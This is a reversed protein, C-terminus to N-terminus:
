GARRATPCSELVRALTASKKKRVEFPALVDSGLVARHTCRASLRAGVGPHGRYRDLRRFKSQLCLRCSAAVSDPPPHSSLVRWVFLQEFDSQANDAVTLRAEDIHARCCMQPRWSVCISLLLPRCFCTTIAIGRESPPEVGVIVRTSTQVRCPGVALEGMLIKRLNHTLMAAVHLGLDPFRCFTSVKLQVIMDQTQVLAAKVETPRQEDSLSHASSCKVAQPQTTPLLNFASTSQVLLSQTSLGCPTQAARLGGNTARPRRPARKAAASTLTPKTSPSGKGSPVSSASSLITSAPAAITGLVSLWPMSSSAANSGRHLLALETARSKCEDDNHRGAGDPAVKAHNPELTVRAGGDSILGHRAPRGARATRRRPHDRGTYNATAIGARGRIPVGNDSAQGMTPRPASLCPAKSHGLRLALVKNQGAQITACTDHVM